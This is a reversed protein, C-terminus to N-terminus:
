YILFPEHNTKLVAEDLMSFDQENKAHISELRAGAEKHNNM